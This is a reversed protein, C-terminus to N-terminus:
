DTQEDTSRVELATNILVALIDFQSHSLSTSSNPIKNLEAVFNNRVSSYALAYRAKPLIQFM